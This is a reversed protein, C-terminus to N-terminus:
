ISFNSYHKSHIICIYISVRVDGGDKEIDTYQNVLKELLLHIGAWVFLIVIFICTYLIVLFFIYLAPMRFIVYKEKEM